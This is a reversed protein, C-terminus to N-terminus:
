PVNYSLFRIDIQYIKNQIRPKQEARKSCKAGSISYKPICEGKVRKLNSIYELSIDTKNNKIFDIYDDQGGIFEFSDSGFGMEHCAVKGFRQGNRGGISFKGTGRCIPGFKIIELGTGAGFYLRGSNWDAALIVNPDVLGTVCEIILFTICIMM